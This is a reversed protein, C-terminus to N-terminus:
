APALQSGNLGSILVISLMPTLRWSTHHDLMLVGGCCMIVLRIGPMSLDAGVMGFSAM